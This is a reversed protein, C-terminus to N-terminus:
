QDYGTPLGKRPPLKSKKPKPKYKKKEAKAKAADKRAAQNYDGLERLSKFEVGTNGSARNLNIKDQVAMHYKNPM